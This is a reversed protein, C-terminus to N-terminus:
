SRSRRTASSTRVAQRRAGRPWDLRADGQGDLDVSRARALRHQDDGQPAAASDVKDVYVVFGADFVALQVSESADRRVPECLAAGAVSVLDVDRVLM